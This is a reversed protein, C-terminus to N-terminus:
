PFRRLLAAVLLRDLMRDPPFRVLRFLIAAERGVIYRTRPRKNIIADAFVRSAEERRAGGPMSARAQAAVAHMLSAYGTQQKTTM